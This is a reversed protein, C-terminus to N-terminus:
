KITGFANNLVENYWAEFLRGAGQLNFNAAAHRSIANADFTHKQQVFRELLSCLDAAANGAAMLGNFGDMVIETFVPVNSVLVPIGCANAEILVCGFTEHRSFLILADSQQLMPVLQAQPREPEWKVKDAIGYEGCWKILQTHPPGVVTLLFDLGTKQYFMGLGAVIAKPNKPEDLTSIHIFRLQKNGPAAAPKFLSTDVVNAIIRYQLKGFVAQLSHALSLSVASVSHAEKYIRQKYSRGLFPLKDYGAEGGNLYGGWHESVLFPLNYKRRLWLAALGAKGAVHVHVLLPLGSIKFVDNIVKRYLFIRMLLSSAQSLPKPYPFISHYYVILQTLNGKESKELKVKKTITGAKDHVLALVVIKHFLAAAQAHRQIFDGEYPM